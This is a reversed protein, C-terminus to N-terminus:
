ALGRVPLVRETKGRARAPVEEVEDVGQSHEGHPPPQRQGDEEIIKAHAYVDESQELNLEDFTRKRRSYGAFAIIKGVIEPPLYM